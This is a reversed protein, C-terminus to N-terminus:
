PALDEPRAITVGYGFITFQIHLPSNGGKTFNLWGMWKLIIAIGVIGLILTVM